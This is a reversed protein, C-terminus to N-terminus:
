AKSLAAVPVKVAGSKLTYLQIVKRYFL